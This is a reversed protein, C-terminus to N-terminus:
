HLNRRQLRKAVAKLNRSVKMALAPPLALKRGPEDALLSSELEVARGRVVLIMTPLDPEIPIDGIVVEFDDVLYLVSDQEDKPLPDDRM